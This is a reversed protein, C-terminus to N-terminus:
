IKEIRLTIIYKRFKTTESEETQTIESFKTTESKETKTIEAGRSTIKPTKQRSFKIGFDNAFRIRTTLANNEKFKNKNRKRDM